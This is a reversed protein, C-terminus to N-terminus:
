ETSIFIVEPHLEKKESVYLGKRSSRITSERQEWTSTCNGGTAPKIYIKGVVIGCQLVFFYIFISEPYVKTM